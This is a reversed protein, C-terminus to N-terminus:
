STGGDVSERRRSSARSASVNEPSRGRRGESRPHNQPTNHREDGAHTDGLHPQGLNADSDGYGGYSADYPHQQAPQGAYDAPNYAPYANPGGGGGYPDNRAVDGTPPPPFYHSSPYTQQQAYPPQQFGNGGMPPPSYPEEQERGNGYYDDDRGLHLTLKSM